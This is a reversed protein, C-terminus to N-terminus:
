KGGHTNTIGSKPSMLAKIEPVRRFAMKLGAKNKNEDRNILFVATGIAGAAKVSLKPDSKCVIVAPM